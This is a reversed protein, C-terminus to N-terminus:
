SKEEFMWPERERLIEEVVLLTCDDAALLRLTDRHHDRKRKLRAFAKDHGNQKLAWNKGQESALEEQLREVEGLLVPVVTRAAAIFTADPESDCSLPDGDEDWVTAVVMGHAMIGDGPCACPSEGKQVTWPGPTAAECLARLAEIREPTM